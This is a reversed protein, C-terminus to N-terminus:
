RADHHEVIWQARVWASCRLLHAALAEAEDPRLWHGHGNQEIDAKSGVRVGWPGGGRKHTNQKATRCGLGRDLAYGLHGSEPRRSRGYAGCSCPEATSAGADAGCAHCFWAAGDRVHLPPDPSRGSVLTMDSM